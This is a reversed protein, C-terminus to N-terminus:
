QRGYQKLAVEIQTAAEISRHIAAVMAVFPLSLGMITLPIKFHGFFNKLVFQPGAHQDLIQKLTFKGGM